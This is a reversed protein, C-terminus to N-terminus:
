APGATTPDFSLKRARQTVQMDRPCSQLSPPPDKASATEPMLTEGVPSLAAGHTPASERSAIQPSDEEGKIESAGSQNKTSLPTLSQNSPFVPLKSPKTKTENHSAARLPPPRRPKQFSVHTQRVTSRTHPLHAPLHPLTRMTPKLPQYLNSLGQAPPWLSTYVGM